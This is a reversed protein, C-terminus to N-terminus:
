AIYLQRNQGCISSEMIDTNQSCEDWVLWLKATQLVTNQHGFAISDNWKGQIKESFCFHSIFTGKRNKSALYHLNCM